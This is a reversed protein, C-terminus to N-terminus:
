LICYICNAFIVRVLARNEEKMINGIIGSVLALMLGICFIQGFINAIVIM